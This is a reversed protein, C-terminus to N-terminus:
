KIFQNVIPKTWPWNRRKTNLRFAISLDAAMTPFQGPENGLEKGYVALNLKFVAPEIGLGVMPLMDHVGFRLKLFNFFGLEAGIGLDLIPNRHTFDTDWTFVNQFNHWDIMAAAYASQLLKPATAWVNALRFTYAVGPNVSIPVRYITDSSGSKGGDPILTSFNYVEMGATYVDNVALGVVLDRKFRYILGLDGGAGVILPISLEDLFKDSDDVLDLANVELDTLARAFPKLAFGVSVEHDKFRLVNFSMGFTLMLDAYATADVDVGIIRSDVFTRSFLGVGLGNATYGISFPGRMDMGLPLRGDDTLDTLGKFPNKVNGGGADDGSDEFAETFDGVASTFDSGSEVFKDLPGFVTASFEIISGQNAWQLAAPNVFLAYINDTYAVHPGGLGNSQPSPLTLPAMKIEEAAAFAASLCLFVLLAAILKKM